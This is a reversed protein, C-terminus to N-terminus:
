VNTSQGNAKALYIQQQVLANQYENKIQKSFVVIAILCATVIIFHVIGVFALGNILNLIIAAIAFGGSQKLGAILAFGALIISFIWVVTTITDLVDIIDKMGSEKIMDEIFDKDVDGDIEALTDIISESATFFKKINNISPTKIFANVTKIYKKLEKEQKSSLDDEIEELMDDFYEEIEDTDMDLDIDSGGMISSIAPIDFLGTNLTIFGGIIFLVAAALGMIKTMLVAKKAKPSANNSLYDKKTAFLKPTNNVTSNSTNNEANSCVPCAENENLQKGCKTCFM